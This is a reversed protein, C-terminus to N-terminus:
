LEKDIPWGASTTLADKNMRRLRFNLRIDNRYLKIKRADKASRTQM